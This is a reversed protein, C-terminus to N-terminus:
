KFMEEPGEVLELGEVMMRVRRQICVMYMVTM